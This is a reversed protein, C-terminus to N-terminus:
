TVYVVEWTEDIYNVCYTVTKGDKDEITIDIHAPSPGPVVAIIKGERNRSDKELAEKLADLFNQLKGNAM